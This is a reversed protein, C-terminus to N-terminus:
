TTINKPQKLGSNILPFCEYILANCSLLHVLQTNLTTAWIGQILVFWLFLNTLSNNFVFGFSFLWINARKYDTLLEKADPKLLFMLWSLFMTRNGHSNWDEFLVNRCQLRDFLLRTQSMIEGLFSLCNLYLNSEIKNNYYVM